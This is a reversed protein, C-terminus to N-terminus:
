DRTDAGAAPPELAQMVAKRLTTEDIVSVALRTVNRVCIERWDKLTAAATRAPAAVAGGSAPASLDTLTKWTDLWGSSQLVATVVESAGAPPPGQAAAEHRDNMGGIVLRDGPFLQYNASADGKSVIDDYRVTLTKTPKGGRAPRVVVIRSRDAGPLLGGAYNIAEMITEQGTFPMRGPNAVYGTVYYVKSNYATVDVFVRDTEGPEVPVWRGTPVPPATEDAPEVPPAAMAPGPTQANAGPQVEITIKVGQGPAITLSPAPGNVVPPALTGSDQLPPGIENGPFPPPPDREVPRAVV